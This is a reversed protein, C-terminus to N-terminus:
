FDRGEFAPRVSPARFWRIGLSLQLTQKRFTPQDHFPGHTRSPVAFPAKAASAADSTADALLVIAYSQPSLLERLTAAM